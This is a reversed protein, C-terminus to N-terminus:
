KLLSWKLQEKASQYVQSVTQEGIPIDETRLAVRQHVARPDSELIIGNDCIEDMTLMVIDLNEMLFRKEVNKRLVLSLSESLCKLVSLLILENEHCSGFVFLFLDINTEYLCTLGDLAIIESKAQNARKFLKKEFARQEKASQFSSDYYKSIIHHGDNDLIAMGKVIYLTPEFMDSTSTTIVM